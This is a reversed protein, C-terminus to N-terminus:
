KNKGMVSNLKEAARPKYLVLYACSGVAMVFRLTKAGVSVQWFTAAIDMIISVFLCIPQILRIWKDGAKLGEYVKGFENWAILLCWYMCILLWFISEFEASAVSEKGEAIHLLDNNPNLAYLAASLVFFRLLDCLKMNFTYDVKKEEVMHSTFMIDSVVLFMLTLGQLLGDLEITGSVKWSLIDGLVERATVSFLIGFIIHYFTM